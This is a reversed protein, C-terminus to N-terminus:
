HSSKKINQNGWHIFPEILRGRYQLDDDFRVVNQVFAINRFFGPLLRNSRIFYCPFEMRKWNLRQNKINKWCFESSFRRHVVFFYLPVDFFYAKGWRKKGIKVSFLLFFRKKKCFFHFFTLFLRSLDCFCTYIICMIVPCYSLQSSCWVPLTLTSLELRKQEVM